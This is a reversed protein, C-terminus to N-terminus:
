SPASRMLVEGLSRDGFLLSSSMGRVLQPSMPARHLCPNANNVPTHNLSRSGFSVGLHLRPSPPAKQGAGVANESAVSTLDNRPGRDRAGSQRARRWDETSHKLLPKCDPSGTLSGVMPTLSDQRIQSIFENIEVANFDIQEIWRLASAVHFEFIAMATEFGLNVTLMRRGGNRDSCSSSLRSRVIQNQTAPFPCLADCKLDLGYCITFLVGLLSYYAFLSIRRPDAKHQL